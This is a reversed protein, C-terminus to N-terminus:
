FIMLIASLFFAAFFITLTAGMFIVKMARPSFFALMFFIAYFMCYVALARSYVDLGWLNLIGNPYGIYNMLEVELRMMFMACIMFGLALWRHKKHIVIFVLPLWILDLWHYFSYSLTSFM